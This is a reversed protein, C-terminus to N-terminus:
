APVESPMGATETGCCQVLPESSESSASATKAEARQKREEAEQKQLKHEHAIWTNITRQCITKGKYRIQKQVADFIAICTWGARKWELMKSGIARQELNVALRRHCRTGVVKFGYPCNGTTHYGKAKLATVALRVRENRVSKEFENVAGIISLMLRGMDSGTDIQVDLIHLSVGRAHWIDVTNLLDKLNRWGRDLRSIVVADGREVIASLAAGGPRKILHKCGSQATDRFMGAFKFGQSELRFHCYDKIQNEQAEISVGQDAQRQTSVRSYGWANQM